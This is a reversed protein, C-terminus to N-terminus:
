WPEQIVEYIKINDFMVILKLGVSEFQSERIEEDKLLKIGRLTKNYSLFVHTVKYKDLVDKNYIPNKYFNRVEEIKKIISPLETTKLYPADGDNLFIRHSIAITAGDVWENSIIISNSPATNNRLWLLSTYGTYSMGTMHNGQLFSVNNTFVIQLMMIAIFNKYYLRTRVRKNIIMNINPMRSVIFFLIMTIVIYNYPFVRQFGSRAPVYNDYFIYFLISIITIFTSFLYFTLINDRINEKSFFYIFLSVLIISLHIIFNDKLDRYVYTPLYQNFRPESNRSPYLTKIFGWTYDESNGTTNRTRTSILSTIIPIRGVSLFFTISTILMTIILLFIINLIASRTNKNKKINIILISAVMSMVVLLISANTVSVLSITIGMLIKMKRNPKEFLFKSIMWLSAFMFVLAVAETRYATFKYIFLKMNFIVTVCLVSLHYNLFKNCFALAFIFSLLIIMYPMIKLFYVDSCKLIAYIFSSILNYGIYTAIYAAPKGYLYITDPITGQEIIISTLYHYTWVLNTSPLYSKLQSMYHPMITFGLGLIFMITHLINKKWSKQTNLFVYPIKKLSRVIVNINNVCIKKKHLFYVILMMCELVLIKFYNNISFTYNMNFLNAFFPICYKGTLLLM